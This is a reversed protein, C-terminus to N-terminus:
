WYVREIEFNRKTKGYHKSNLNVDPINRYMGEFRTIITKERHM